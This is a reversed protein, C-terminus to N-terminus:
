QISFDTKQITKISSKTRNIIPNYVESSINKYSTFPDSATHNELNYKIFGQIGSYAKFRILKSPQSFLTTSPIATFIGTDGVGLQLSHTVEEMSNGVIGGPTILELEISNLSGKFVKYVSIINSTYIQTHAENWFSSKATVRGEFIIQAKDIRQELTIPILQGSATHVLFFVMMFVGSRVWAVPSFHVRM